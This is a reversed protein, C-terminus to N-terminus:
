TYHAILSNGTVEPSYDMRRLLFRDDYYFTQHPNHNPLHAPFTVALRRWRQDNEEWPDIEHVEVGPYTFLFPETFYNWNAAGTFYAMHLADWRVADDYAPFSSRPDHREQDISGDPGKIQVRPPSADFVATTGEGLFPTLTAHEHKAEITLTQVRRIQPGGRRTTM